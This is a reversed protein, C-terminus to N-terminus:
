DDIPQVFLIAQPALELQALSATLDTGSFVKRPFNTALCYKLASFGELSDVYDHVRQLPDAALFRRQHNAGDPLRIRINATGPGAAPEAGLAARKDQQRKALAAALQEQRRAEAQREAEARAAAEAVAKAELEEKARAEARERERKQDAQLSRQYEADQEERLQRNYAREQQEAQEAVLYAGHDNVARFLHDILETPSGYGEVASVLRTRQGSFALVAVFPYSTVRLSSSLRYADAFRINGGWAVFNANVYEVVGPSCLTGRCFRDTDQHNPSHLYALLFKFETHARAAADQWSSEAWEPRANGYTDAFGRIFIRAAQAPEVETHLPTLARVSGRLRQMVSVPLVATGVANLVTAGAQLVSLVLGLSIRTAEVPIRLLTRLLGGSRRAVPGAVPRAAVPALPATPRPPTARVPPVARHTLPVQEYFMAVARDYNGNNAELFFRAQEAPCNTVAM